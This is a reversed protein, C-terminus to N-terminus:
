DALVRRRVDRELENVGEHEHQRPDDHPQWKADDEKTVHRLEQLAPLHFASRGGGREGKAKM